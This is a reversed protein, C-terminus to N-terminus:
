PPYLEAAFLKNDPHLIIECGSGEARGMWYFLSDRQQDYESGKDAEIGFLEISRYGFHLSLALAYPPTGTFFARPMVELPYRRSSPISEERGLTWIPFPHPQMLFETYGECGVIGNYRTAWDPHLEFVGTLRDIPITLSNDNFAWYDRGAQYEVYKRTKGRGVIVLPNM